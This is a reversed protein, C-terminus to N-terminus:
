KRGIWTWIGWGLAIIVLWPIAKEHFPKAEYAAQAAAERQKERAVARQCDPDSNCQTVADEAAAERVAGDRPQGSAYPICVLCFTAVAAFFLNKTKSIRVAKVPNHAV